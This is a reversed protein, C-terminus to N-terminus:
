GSKGAPAASLPLTMHVILEPLLGVARAREVVEETITEGENIIVTGERTVLNRGALKGVIYRLQRRSSEEGTGAPRAQAEEAVATPPPPEGPLRATAVLRASIDNPVVLGQQTTAVVTSAPIISGPPVSAPQDSHGVEYGILTGAEREVVYRSVFGVAQGSQTAIKLRPGVVGIRLLGDAGAAVLASTRESGPLIRGAVKDPHADELREGSVLVSRATGLLRGLEARAQQCETKLAALTHRYTVLEPHNTAQGGAALGMARNVIDDALRRAEELAANLVPEQARKEAVAAQTQALEGFLLVMEQETEALQDQGPALRAQHRSHLGALHADVDGPHYGFFAAAFPSGAEPKWGFNLRKKAAELLSGL